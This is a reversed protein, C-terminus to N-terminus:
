GTIVQPAPAPPHPPPPAQLQPPLQHAPLLNVAPVPLLTLTGGQGAVQPQSTIVAKHPLHKVPAHVIILGAAVAVEPLHPVAPVPLDPVLQPTLLAQSAPVPPISLIHEAPAASVRAIIVPHLVAAVMIVVPVEALVAAMIGTIIVVVVVQPHVAHPLILLPTALQKVVAPPTITGLESVQAAEPPILATQDQVPHHNAVIVMGGIDVPVIVLPVIPLVVEQLNVPVVLKIGPLVLNVLGDAQLLVPRGVGPLVAEALTAEVM